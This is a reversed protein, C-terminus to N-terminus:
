EEEYEDDDNAWVWKGPYVCDEDKKNENPGLWMKTEEPQHHLCSLPMVKLKPFNMNICKKLAELQDQNPRYTGSDNDPVLAYEKTTPHQVIRMTGSFRVAPRGNAHVAHKSLVDALMAAGTESFYWGDDMLAYTFVRRRGDRRGYYILKLFDASNDLIGQKSRFCSLAGVHGGSPTYLATHEARMTARIAEGEFNDAFIKKHDDDYNAQWIDGFAEQQGDMNLEFTKFDFEENLPHGDDVVRGLWRHHHVGYEVGPGDEEAYWMAANKDQAKEASCSNGM